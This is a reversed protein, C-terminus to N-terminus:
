GLAKRLEAATDAPNAGIQGPFDMALGRLWDNKYRPFVHIHFHLTDRFKGSNQILGVGDPEYVKKIAKTVAQLAKMVAAATLDDLEDIDFYHKKTAVVISGTSVPNPEMFAAVYENEFVFNSPQIGNALLCFECKENIENSM